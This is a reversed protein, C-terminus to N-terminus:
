PGMGVHNDPFGMTIIIVINAINWQDLILDFTSLRNCVYIDFEKINIFPNSVESQSISMISSGGGRYLSYSKTVIFQIGSIIAFLITSIAAQLVQFFNFGYLFSLAGSQLLIINEKHVRNDYWLNVCQEAVKVRNYM